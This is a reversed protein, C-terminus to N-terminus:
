TPLDIRGRERERCKSSQGIERALRDVALKLQHECDMLLSFVGAWKTAM